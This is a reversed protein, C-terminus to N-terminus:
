FNSQVHLGCLIVLHQAKIDVILLLFPPYEQALLVVTLSQYCSFVKHSKLPPRLHRPSFSSLQYAQEYIEPQLFILSAQLPRYKGRPPQQAAELKPLACDYELQQAFCQSQNQM